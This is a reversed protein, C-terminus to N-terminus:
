KQFVGVFFDGVHTFLASNLIFGPCHIYKVLSILCVESDSGPYREVWMRPVHIQALSILLHFGDDLAQNKVMEM